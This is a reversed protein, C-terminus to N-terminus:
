SGVAPLYQAFYFAMLALTLAPMLRQVWRNGVLIAALLIAFMPLAATMNATSFVESMLTANLWAGLAMYGMLAGLYRRRNAIHFAWLDIEGEGDMDPTAFIAGYFLLACALLSAGIDGASWRAHDHLQWMSGWIDIHAFLLVALWALYTPSWKVRKGHKMLQAHTELVRALGLSIVVSLLIMVYDFITM